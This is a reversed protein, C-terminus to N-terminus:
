FRFTLSLGMNLVSGSSTLNMDRVVPNSALARSFSRDQLIHYQIFGDISVPKSLLDWPVDLEYGVGASPVWRDNGVPYFGMAQSTVPTPEYYFGARVEIKRTVRYLLGIRPVFSDNFPFELGQDLPGKYQSWLYIDVQASVKLRETINYAAGLSFNDPTFDTIYDKAVRSKQYLSVPPDLGPTLVVRTEVQANWSSRVYNKQRFVFGLRLREIPRVLIGVLVSPSGFRVNYRSADSTGTESIRIDGGTRLQTALGVGIYFAPSIRTSLAFDLALSSNRDQFMVDVPFSEEIVLTSSLAQRPVFLGVGMAIPTPLKRPTLRQIPVLLGFSPGPISDISGPEGPFQQIEQKGGAPFEVDISPMAYNFGLSFEIEKSLALAAPNYHVSAWGESWAAMSNGLAMGRADVGFTDFYSAAAPYPLCFVLSLFVAPFLLAPVFRSPLEGKHFRSGKRGRKL